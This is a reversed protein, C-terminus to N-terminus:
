LPDDLLRALLSADVMGIMEQVTVEPLTLKLPIVDEPHREIYKCVAFALHALQHARASKIDSPQTEDSYIGALVSLGEVDFMVSDRGGTQFSAPLDNKTMEPVKGALVLIRTQQVVWLAPCMPGWLRTISIFNGDATEYFTRLTPDEMVDSMPTIDSM